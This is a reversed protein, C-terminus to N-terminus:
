NAACNSVGATLNLNMGSIIISILNRVDSGDATPLSIPYKPKFCHQGDSCSPSPVCVAPSTEEPPSTEVLFLGVLVEAGFGGRGHVKWTM